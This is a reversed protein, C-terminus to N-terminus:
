AKMQHSLRKAGELLARAVTDVGDKQITSGIALAVLAHDLQGGLGIVPASIVTVGAVYNDIDVAYGRERAEQVDERWRELSPPNDWRLKRFRREIEAPAVESFAAICRGTAGVMAPFRAGIEASLQLSSSAQSLAVVIMHDLGVIRMGMVTVDYADAIKNLVPQAIDTFRNRRLWHRALTLVGADLTYRKTTPDFAVLEEAVLARLIHLCTSPVIDLARALPHVGVPQGNKGLLRLIAAARSIAPV